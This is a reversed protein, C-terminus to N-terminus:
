VGRGLRLGLDFSQCRKLEFQKKFLACVSLWLDSCRPLFMNLPDAQGAWTVYISPYLSICVVYLTSYVVYVCIAMGSYTTWSPGRLCVHAACVHRHGRRHRCYLMICVRHIERGREREAYIYIYVIWESERLWSLSYKNYGYSGNICIM